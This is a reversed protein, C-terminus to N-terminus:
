YWSNYFLTKVAGVRQFRSRPMPRLNCTCLISSRGVADHVQFIPTLWDEMKPPADGSNM